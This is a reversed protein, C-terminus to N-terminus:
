FLVQANQEELLLQCGVNQIENEKHLIKWLIEENRESLKWSSKENIITPLKKKQFQFWLDSHALVVFSLLPTISIFIVSYFLGRWWGDDYYM